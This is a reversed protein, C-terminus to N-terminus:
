DEIIIKQPEINKKDSKKILKLADCVRNKYIKGNKLQSQFFRISAGEEFSNVIQLVQPLVEPGFSCLPFKLNMGEGDKKSTNKKFTEDEKRSYYLKYKVKNKFRFSSSINERQIELINRTPKIELYEIADIENCAVPLISKVQEDKNIASMAVDFKLCENNDIAAMIVRNLTERQRNAVRLINFYSNEDKKYELNYYRYTFKSKIIKGESDIGYWNTYNDSIKMKNPNLIQSESALLQCSFIMCIIWGIVIQM